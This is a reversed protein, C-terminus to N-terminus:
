FFKGLNTQQTRKKAEELSSLANEVRDLLFDHEQVLLNTLAEKNVDNWILTYDGTTPMDKITKYVDQWSASAHKDFEVKKFLAEFDEGYEKVLAIGKKPGLGKVGGVNFDTGILMALARLQNLTLGLKELISKLILVEPLVVKYTLANIKKRKQSLSLNRVVKKAGYILCDFDQSAVYDCTGDNVMRAAQPEGESPAEVIPIGLATLLDKSEQLINATLRASRGAFKKMGELDQSEKAEEFSAIAKLKAKERRAREEKKLDPMKDDFVFVLKIGKQMLRTCRSFLGTLHSTVRGKSDKLPTGDHQRITTVFQYLMNMADVALIKGQLQDIQIETADILSTIAVGM